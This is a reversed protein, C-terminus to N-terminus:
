NVCITQITNTDGMTHTEMGEVGHSIDHSGLLLAPTLLRVIAMYQPM